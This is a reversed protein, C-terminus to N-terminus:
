DQPLGALAEGVDRGVCSEPERWSQGFDEAPEEDGRVNMMNVMVELQGVGVAIIAVNEANPVPEESRQGLKRGFFGNKTQVGM